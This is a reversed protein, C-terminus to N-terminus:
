EWASVKGLDSNRTSQCQHRASSDSVDLGSEPNSYRHRAISAIVCYSSQEDGEMQSGDITIDILDVPPPTSYDGPRYTFDLLWKKTLYDKEMRVDYEDGHIHASFLISSIARSKIVKNNSQHKKGVVIDSQLCAAKYITTKMFEEAFRAKMETKVEYSPILVMKGEWNETSPWKDKIATIEDVCLEYFSNDDQARATITSLLAIIVILYKKM